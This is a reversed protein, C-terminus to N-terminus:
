SRRRTLLLTSGLALLALSAPEPIPAPTWSVDDVYVGGFQSTADGGYIEVNGIGVPGTGSNAVNIWEPSIISNIGSFTTNNPINDGAVTSGTTAQIWSSTSMSMTGGVTDVSFTYETWVGIQRGLGASTARSWSVSPNTTDLPGGGSGSRFYASYNGGGFGGAKQDNLMLPATGDPSTVGWRFGYDTALTTAAGTDYIWMTVTGSGQNPLAYLAEGGPPVYLSQTGSHAFATSISPITGGAAPATLTWGATGSEFDSVLAAKATSIGAALSVALALLTFRNSM